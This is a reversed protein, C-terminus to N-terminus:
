VTARLLALSRRPYICGASPKRLGRLGEEEFWANRLITILDYLIDGREGRYAGNGFVSTDISGNFQVISGVYIVACLHLRGILWTFLKTKLNMAAHAGPKLTRTKDKVLQYELERM